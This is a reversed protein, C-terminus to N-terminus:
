ANRDDRLSLVKWGALALLAGSAVGLTNALMDAPDFTRGPVLRQAFELAIGYAIVALWAQYQVRPSRATLAALLAFVLYTTFHAAKDSAGLEAGIRPALSLWAVLVAYAGVCLRACRSRALGAIRNRLTM